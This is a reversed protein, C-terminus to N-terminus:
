STIRFTVIITTILILFVLAWLLGGEGELMRITSTVLWEVMYNLTKIIAALWKLQLFDNILRSLLQFETKLREIANKSRQSVRGWWNSFLLGSLTLGIVIGPNIVGVLPGSLYSPWPLYIWPSILLIIPSINNSVDVWKENSLNRNITKRLNNTVGLLVLLIILNYLVGPFGYEMGITKLWLGNSPTFPLGIM